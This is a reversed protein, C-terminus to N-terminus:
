TDDFVGVMIPQLSRWPHGDVLGKLATHLLLQIGGSVMGTLICLLTQLFVVVDFLHNDSTRFAGEDTDGPHRNAYALLTNFSFSNGKAEAM